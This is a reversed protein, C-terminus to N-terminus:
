ATELIGGYRDMAQDFQELNSSFLGKQPGYVYTAGRKGCLPNNVDSAVKIEVESQWKKLATVDVTHINSLDKGFVSVEEGNIDYAKMGLAQLMGLGGDYIPLACTQVG